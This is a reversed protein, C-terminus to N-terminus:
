LATEVYQVEDFVVSTPQTIRWLRVFAGVITILALLQWDSGPLSFIDQDEVGESKYSRVPVVAQAKDNGNARRAPSRSATRKKKPEDLTTLGAKASM